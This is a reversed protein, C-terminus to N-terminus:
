ISQSRKRDDNLILAVLAFRDGWTQMFAGTSWKGDMRARNEMAFLLAVYGDRPTRVESTDFQPVSRVGPDAKDTQDRM